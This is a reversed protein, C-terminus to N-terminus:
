CLYYSNMRTIKAFLTGLGIFVDHRLRRTHSLPFWACPFGATLQQTIVVHPLTAWDSSKPGTWCGLDNPPMWHGGFSTAYSIVPPGSCITWGGWGRSIIFMSKAQTSFDHSKRQGWLSCFRRTGCLKNLTHRLDKRNVEWMGPWLSKERVYEKYMQPDLHCAYSHCVAGLNELVQSSASIFLNTWWAPLCEWQSIADLDKWPQKLLLWPM